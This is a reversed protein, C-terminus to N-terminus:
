AAAGGAEAKASAESATAPPALTALLRERIEDLKGEHTIKLGFVDKVYFVDVVREGFTSIKATAIQIGLGTVARALDHLLGSRDRGNLEIVTHTASADNDILVLPAVTFIRTRSPIPSPRDLQAHPRVEGLLTREIMDSLRALREPREFPGGDADQISFIDLAMGDATTFVKADVINAGVLAMAGALRSFLGPHDATYVTAETVARAPDVRTEVTLRREARDAARTLRAHYAHTEVDLSLWYSPYGRALFADIDEARWDALRERLAEKAAAVRAARGGALLGGSMMDRAAIYLERLLTAKWNNWVNPGVARIDSVTLLLLLRLRESSQVIEVFDHITKADTLDRKFAVNSMLLHHRVLWAVTDTEEEDLGLRPGLKLAIKAGLESHDGGRGKAIDHLLVALYLARRSQIQPALETATPHDGALQGSEIRHLIGIAFITHEDVTYVHYMDHQMQAVIRGFDRIFRGFVGAENLLRLTREPDKRSTLIEMFLRNADADARLKADVRKLHRRVLRLADPHIDLEVRQAVEFIRILNIPTDTFDSESAVTLHRGDAVFGEVDHRRGGLARLSFRPRRRHEVELAATFIRTLDGVTKATLYYHKMFREVGIAGAHDTYGLRRGIESQVDFTLRDEERGALYHLHARVTWLFDQAKQFRAVEAKTFVGRAALEGIDDVEYLYKAIWFLTHLDRLGGKGDKLNPELVYRSDGMRQHRADREALKAKVFEPGTGRVIEAAFRRRLDIYLAQEGWLYRAELLSTRITLDQKSLRICEEVSRTAHGVKLGLDWLMYLAYEIVQETVPTIKYPFLFLLDVDSQPALDGRGYGGLAVLCLREGATPNPRHYVHTLTFDHLSRIIQDILITNGQVVATGSNDTEFRGRIEDRGAALRAKLEDLVRARLKEQALGEAALAALAADLDARDVIARRDHLKKM